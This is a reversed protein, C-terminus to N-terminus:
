GSGADILRISWVMEAFPVPYTLACRWGRFPTNEHGTGELVHQVLAQHNPIGAVEHRRRGTPLQVIPAGLELSAFDPVGGEPSSNVFGGPTPNVFSVSPIASPYIDEALYVDGMGGRGILKLVQYRHKGQRIAPLASEEGFSRLDVGGSLLRGKPDLEFVVSSDSLMTELMEHSVDASHDSKKDALSDIRETPTTADSARRLSIRNRGPQKQESM